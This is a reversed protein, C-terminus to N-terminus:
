SCVLFYFSDMFAACAQNISFSQSSKSLIHCSKVFKSLIQCFTFHNSLIWCFKVPNSLKVSYSLNSSIQCSDVPSSLSSQSNSFSLFAINDFSSFLFCCCLYVKEFIYMRCFMEFLTNATNVKNKLLIKMNLNFDLTYKLNPFSWHDIKFVVIM